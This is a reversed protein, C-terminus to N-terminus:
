YFVRLSIFLISISFIKAYPVHVDCRSIGEPIKPIIRILFTVNDKVPVLSIYIKIGRTLSALSNCNSDISQKESKSIDKIWIAPVSKLTSIM